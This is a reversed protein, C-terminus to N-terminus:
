IPIQTVCSNCLSVSMQCAICNSNILFTERPLNIKSVLARGAPPHPPSKNSWVVRVTIFDAYLWPVKLLRPRFCSVPLLQRRRLVPFFMKERVRVDKICVTERDATGGFSGDSFFFWGHLIKPIILSFLLTWMDLAHAMRPVSRCPPVDGSFTPEKQISRPVCRSKRDLRRPRTRWWTRVPRLFRSKNMKGDASIRNVEAPFSAFGRHLCSWSTGGRILSIYAVSMRISRSSRCLRRLFALRSPLLCAKTKFIVIPGHGCKKGDKQEAEHTGICSAYTVYRPPATASRSGPLLQLSRDFSMIGGQDHRACRRLSRRDGWISQACWENVVKGSKYFGIVYMFAVDVVERVYLSAYFKQCKETPGPIIRM